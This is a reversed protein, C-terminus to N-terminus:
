MKTLRFSQAQKRKDYRLKATYYGRVRAPIREPATAYCKWEHESILPVHDRSIWEQVHNCVPCTTFVTDPM